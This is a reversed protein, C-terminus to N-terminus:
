DESPIPINNTQAWSVLLKEMVHVAKQINDVQYTLVDLQEKSNQIDAVIQDTSIAAMVDGQVVDPTPKLKILISSLNDTQDGDPHSGMGPIVYNDTFQWVDWANRPPNTSYRAMVIPRQGHYKKMWKHSDVFGDFTYLAVKVGFLHDSATLVADLHAETVPDVEVDLMPVVGGVRSHDFWFKAQDFSGGVERYFHYPGYPHGAAELSNAFVYFTPDQYTLAETSKIWGFESLGSNKVTMGNLTRQYHSADFGKHM